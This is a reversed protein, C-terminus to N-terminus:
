KSKTVDIKTGKKYPTYIVDWSTKKGCGTADWREKIRFNGNPKKDKGLQPQMAIIHPEVLDMKECKTALTYVSALKQMTAIQLERSGSTEGKFRVSQAQADSAAVITLAGLAVAFFVSKM